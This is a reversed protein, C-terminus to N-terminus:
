FSPSDEEPHLDEKRDLDKLQEVWEKEQAERALQDEM